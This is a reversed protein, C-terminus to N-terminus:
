RLPFVVHGHVFTISFYVLIHIELRLGEPAIIIAAAGM